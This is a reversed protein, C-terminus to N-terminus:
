ISLYIFQEESNIADCIISLEEEPIPTAPTPIKKYKNMLFYKNIIKM